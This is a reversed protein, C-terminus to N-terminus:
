RKVLGVKQFRHGSIIPDGPYGLAEFPFLVDRNSKALQAQQVGRLQAQFTENESKHCTTCTQKQDHCQYCSLAQEKPAVQHNIKWHMSTAVFEYQGSYELGVSAMGDRAAQDWDYHSWYGKWLKPVILHSHVADSIQTAQHIKFPAIKAKPDQIDGLPHNLVTVGHPNVKDGLVYRTHTGNDWAYAPTVNKGWVFSGKMKNFAPKGHQAPQNAAEQGASSWDWEMKTPNERAFAPIHCTQCAITKSHMNLHHNLLNAGKHPAETHCDECSIRQERTPIAQCGGQIQHNETVHCDQCLFHHKGMHVDLEPMPELLSSDMDGHKVGDGGGGFFHCAGCNERSPHGVHSAVTVLDVEKEPYGAGTPAKKYTGTTDHCVLCDINEANSFDFHDDKWGYGAHCMTCREWNSGIHICYNNIVTKKGLHVAKEHNHTDPSLGDWKWHASQLIPDKVSEHCSLCQATIAQPTITEPTKIFASHDPVQRRHCTTCTEPGSERQVHCDICLQHYAGKLGPRTMEDPQAPQSHCEQCAVPQTNKFADRTTNSGVRDGDFAPHRHHCVSCDGQELGAHKKHMFHVTGYRDPGQQMSPHDLLLFSPMSDLNSEWSSRMPVPNQAYAISVFLLPLLLSARKAFGVAGPLPPTTVADASTPEHDPLVPFLTVAVRYFFLIAAILGATIAIEGIAPFYSTEAFPPNYGVLFVNVRNLVVGFIVLSSAIFLGATSRRVRPSAFLFFPLLVGMGIEVLFSVSEVSFSFASVPYRVILDGFKLIMYVGLFYPIYGALTQLLGTEPKHRFSKAAILSEFIVMPFGVMMASALFLLPLIPTYWLPNLKSPAILMLAGLSSQHMCSLVVGALIFIPMIREVQKHLVHAPKKLFAIFSAFPSRNDIHYAIGELVIPLFEISLVTLYVMVCIGVEFLVSNGQWFVMPHWINYYRGLDAMLGISVFLYGLWATLLAPRIIQRFHRRNFVYVLAATTFGGAALAVGSAVDVAIWIGWPHQDDLNTIADLGFIFRFVAFGAGIGMLALLVLVGPTLFPRHIPKYLTTDNM